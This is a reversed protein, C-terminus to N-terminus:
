CCGLLWWFFKNWFWFVFWLMVFTIAYFMNPTLLDKGLRGAIKAVAVHAYFANNRVNTYEILPVDPFIVYVAGNKDLELTKLMADGVEGVTLVRNGTKQELEKLSAVPGSRSVLEGKKEEIGSRVMATDAFWPCLAFAKIGEVEYTNPQALEFNRTVAVNGWKTINYGSGQIDGLGGVQVSINQCIKM